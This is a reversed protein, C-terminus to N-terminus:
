PRKSSNMVLITGIVTSAIGAICGLLRNQMLGQNHVRGGGITGIGTIYRSETSVSTDYAFFFYFSSVLGRFMSPTPSFDNPRSRMM